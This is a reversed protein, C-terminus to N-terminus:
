YKSNPLQLINPGPIKNFAFRRTNTQDPFLYLANSNRINCSHVQNIMSFMENFVDPLFGIKYLYMFKGIQFFYIDAFQNVKPTHFERFIPGTHADFPKKSIIYM